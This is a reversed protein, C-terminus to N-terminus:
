FRYENQTPVDKLLASKLYQYVINRQEKGQKNKLDEKYLLGMEDLPLIDKITKQEFSKKEACKPILDKCLFTIAAFCGTNGM